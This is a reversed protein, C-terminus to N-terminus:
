KKKAIIYINDRVNIPLKIKRWFSKNFFISIAHWVKSGQWMYLTNFIYTLSFKKTLRKNFIIEFGIKELMINLSKQSYYFIHEPPIIMNWKKGWIRAWFSQSDITNIALIGGSELMSYAKELYGIPDEVHEFVDWMTVVSFLNHSDLNYVLLSDCHMNHGRSSSEDCAFRSIESGHTKWGNKKAIDLFYGTAAGVDFINRGSVLDDYRKLEKIFVSKMPEKDNDYSTYGHSASNEKKHFYDESYFSGLNDPIPWVFLSKCFKCKYIKKDNKTHYLSCGPEDCLPCELITKKNNEM